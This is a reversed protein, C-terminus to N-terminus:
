GHKLVLSNDDYHDCNETAQYLFSKAHIIADVLTEMRCINCAIATSLAYSSGYIPINKSVKGTFVQHDQQSTILVDVIEGLENKQTNNGTILVCSCGLSLFIHGAQVMTDTDFIKCGSIYEAEHQNIVLLDVRPFLVKRAENLAEQSMIPHDKIHTIPTYVLPTQSMQDNLFQTILRINEIKTVIGMKVCEIDRMNAFSQLQIKITEEMFPVVRLHDDNVGQRCIISTIGSLVHINHKLATKVDGQIGSIGFPDSEALVLLKKVSM